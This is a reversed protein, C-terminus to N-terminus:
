LSGWALLPTNSFCWSVTKTCIIAIMEEGISITRLRIKLLLEATLDDDSLVIQDRLQEPIIDSSDPIHLIM